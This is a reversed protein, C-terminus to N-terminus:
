HAMDRRLESIMQELPMTRGARIDDMASAWQDPDIGARSCRERHLGAFFERMVRGEIRPKSRSNEPLDGRAEMWPPERHTMRWLESASFRRYNNWVWLVFRKDADSLQPDERGENPPIPRGEHEAFTGYVERVVPGHQWAEFESDFLPAGRSGLAWGQAYYLLKQLRLPTLTAEEPEQAALWLFFRAVAEASAM